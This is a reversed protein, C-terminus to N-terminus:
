LASFSGPWAFSRCAPCGCAHSSHPSVGVWSHSGPSLLCGPTLLVGACVCPVETLFAALFAACMRTAIHSSRCHEHQQTTRTTRCTFPAASRRPRPHPYTDEVLEQPTTPSGHDNTFCCACRTACFCLCSMTFTCVGQRINGLTAVAAAGLRLIFIVDLVFSPWPHAQM